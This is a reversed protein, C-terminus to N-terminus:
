SIAKMAARCLLMFGLQPLVIVRDARIMITKVLDEVVGM